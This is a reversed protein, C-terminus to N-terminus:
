KGLTKYRTPEPGKPGNDEFPHPESLVSDSTDSPIHM